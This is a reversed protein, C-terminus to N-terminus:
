VGLAEAIVTNIYTSLDPRSDSEHAASLAARHIIQRAGPPLRLRVNPTPSAPTQPVHGSPTFAFGLKIALIRVAADNLSLGEAFAHDALAQKVKPALRVGIEERRRKAV